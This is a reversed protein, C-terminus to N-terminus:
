TLKEKRLKALAAVHNKGSGRWALEPSLTYISRHETPMILDATELKRFARSVSSAHMGLDKAITAKCVTLRNEYELISLLYFLVAHAERGLKAGALMKGADMSMAFWTMGFGNRKRPIVAVINLHELMEGTDLDYHGLKRKLAQVKQRM